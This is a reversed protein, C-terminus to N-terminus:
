TASDAPSVAKLVVSAELLLAGAALFSVKLRPWRSDDISIQVRQEPLLPALFKAKKVEVLAYEPYIEGLYAHMRALLWAGPVVPAGPFHGQVCPASAGVTFYCSM